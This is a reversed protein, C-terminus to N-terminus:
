KEAGKGGSVRHALRKVCRRRQGNATGAKTIAKQNGNNTALAARESRIRELLMSAPEDNSDQSVLKGLFAERLIGNRLVVARQYGVDSISIVNDVMSTLQEIEAVIRMQEDKPPLAYPASMLAKQTLKRRGTSGTTLPIFPYFMLSYNLYSPVIAATSRLVHAHNNVWAKGTILYSFPITRGVFTEDEVVLVLPEDFLFDDIWGVRGNAGYYPVDGKRKAREEKNIPIRRGDLCEAIQDISAWIWGDPLDPLGSTDPSEPARYKEKWKDDKPPKGAAIMKQLQDAEWKARREALIRKLLESAPEYSRGEKRALDAETSVLRGECAAKLVSARYRKLNGQVRKLAAVADDLRTFQKEIEAVIRTQEPKPATIFQLKRVFQFHRSYGRDPLQLVPFQYLLFKPDFATTPGLLKVGQAGVVFPQDILKVRRTHDGFVILPFPGNCALAVDDTYGGIHEEGQDVVPLAGEHKYDSEPLRKGEDSIVKFADGFEAYCWSQPLSM